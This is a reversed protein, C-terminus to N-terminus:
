NYYTSIAEEFIIFKSNTASAYRFHCSVYICNLFFVCSSRKYQRLSGAKTSYNCQPGELEEPAQSRESNESPISGWARCQIVVGSGKSLRNWLGLSIRIESKIFCQGVSKFECSEKVFHGLHISYSASFKYNSDVM